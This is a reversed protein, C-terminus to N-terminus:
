RVGGRARRRRQPSSGVGALPLALPDDGSRLPSVYIPVDHTIAERPTRHACGLYHRDKGSETTYCRYRGLFYDAHIQTV